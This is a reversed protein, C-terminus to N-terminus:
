GDMGQIRRIGVTEGLATIKKSNCLTISGAPGVPWTFVQIENQTDERTRVGEVTSLWCTRQLLFTTYREDLADLITSHSFLAQGPRDVLFLPPSFFVPITFQFLYYFACRPLFVFVAHWSESAVFSRMYVTHVNVCVCPVQPPHYPVRCVFSPTPFPFTM